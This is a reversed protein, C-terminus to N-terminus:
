RWVMKEDTHLVELVYKVSILVNKAVILSLYIYHISYSPTILERGRVGGYMRIRIRRNLKIRYM